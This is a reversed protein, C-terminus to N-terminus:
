LLKLTLALLDASVSQIYVVSASPVVLSRHGEIATAGICALTKLMRLDRRKTRVHAHEKVLRSCAAPRLVRAAASSHHLQGARM